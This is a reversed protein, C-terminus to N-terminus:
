SIFRVRACLKSHHSPKKEGLLSERRPDWNDYVGRAEEFRTNGADSGMRRDDASPDAGTAGPAFGVFDNPGGGAPTSCFKNSNWSLVSTVISFSKCRM